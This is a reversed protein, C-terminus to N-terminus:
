LAKCPDKAFKEYGYGIQQGDGCAVANSKQWKPVHLEVGSVGNDATRNWVLAREDHKPTYWCGTLQSSSGGSAVFQKLDKFAIIQPKGDIWRFPPRSNGTSEINAVPTGAFFGVGRGRKKGKPLALFTATISTRDVRQTLPPM